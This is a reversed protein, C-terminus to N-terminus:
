CCSRSRPASRRSCRGPSCSSTPSSTTRSRTGPRARREREAQIRLLQKKYNWEYLAKSEDLGEYCQLRILRAGTMEAVSKALQTKGTGAPGEVLVPKGLRDALYVVGAIGDDALYDVSACASSPGRRRVRLARGHTSAVTASATPRSRLDAASRATAGSSTSTPPSSACAWRAAPTCSRPALHRDRRRLRVGRRRRLPDVRERARRRRRGRQHLPRGRRPRTTVIAETHGHRLPQHPRHRRRADAVVRSADAEPRPVRTGFDDDTAPAWRRRRAAAPATTASWSSARSSSRTPSARAPVRRRRGRARGAVRRRQVRAPRQTKANVVIDLAMTSTPPPTSTSTATATATSSTRARHRQRPHEPDAVARRAPHPLRRARTLQMFEVAAEHRPTRSSCSPTRPCAPRPWRRACCPPSPSTRARHRGVLGAPLAANGSKLCLGAADSTVNPRNEYIIAVVGLPVRVRQIRLGNPGRGATSCRASRTPCARRGRAARRGHGRHPRRHPAAPRAAAAAM